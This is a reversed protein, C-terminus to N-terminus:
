SVADGLPPLAGGDDEVARVAELLASRFARVAPHSAMGSRTATYLLRRPDGPLRRLHTGGLHQSAILHPILALAHGSRVLHAQLLPDPTEVLVRPEIGASRLTARQWAGTPGQSPDLTWPAGRLEVLERPDAWPGTPPAVLLLPDGILEVRDIGPRVPEPVGPYEEGLIVDFHRALLGESAAAVERHAITVELEPHDRALLTLAPPAISLLPTQFSALRLHGSVPLERAGALEAEALELREIVARAHDVLALGADTLRVGRGAKELLPVGAERELVALQQSVASPSYQVSRAVEALTGLRQLEVLLRLRQISLM